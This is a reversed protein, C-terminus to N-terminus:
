VRGNPALSQSCEQQWIEKQDDQKETKVLDGNKIIKNHAARLSIAFTNWTNVHQKDERMRDSQEEAFATNCLLSFSLLALITNRM